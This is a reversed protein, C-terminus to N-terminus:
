EDPLKDLIVHSDEDETLGHWPCGIRTCILLDMDRGLVSVRLKATKSNCLECPREPVLMSGKCHPCLLDQMNSGKALEITSEKAFVNFRPSLLLEGQKGKAGIVTLHLLSDEVLEEGCLPCCPHLYTGTRLVIRSGPEPADPPRHEQDTM